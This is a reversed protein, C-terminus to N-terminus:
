WGQIRLFLSLHLITCTTDRMIEWNMTLPVREFFSCIRFLYIFTLVSNNECTKHTPLLTRQMCVQQFLQHGLIYAALEIKGTTTSEPVTYDLCWTSLKLTTTSGFWEVESYWYYNAHSQIWSVFRCSMVRRQSTITPSFQTFSWALVRESPPDKGPSPSYTLIELTKRHKHHQEHVWLCLQYDRPYATWEIVEETTASQADTYGLCM